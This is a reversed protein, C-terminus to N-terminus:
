VCVFSSNFRIYRWVKRVSLLTIAWFFITLWLFSTHYDNVTVFIGRVSAYLCFSWLGGMFVKKLPYLRLWEIKTIPNWQALQFNDRAECSEVAIKQTLHKKVYDPLNVLFVLIALFILTYM